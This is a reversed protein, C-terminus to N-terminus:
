AARRPAEPSSERASEIVERAWAEDEATPQPRPIDRLRYFDELTRPRIDDLQEPLEQRVADDVLEALMAAPTLGRKDALTRLAFQRDEDLHLEEAAM